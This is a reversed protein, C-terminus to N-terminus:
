LLETCTTKLCNELTTTIKIHDYSSALVANGVRDDQGSTWYKLKQNTALFKTVQCMLNVPKLKTWKLSPALFHMQSYPNKEIQVGKWVRVGRMVNKKDGLIGLEIKRCIHQICKSSETCEKKTCSGVLHVHDLLQLHKVYM